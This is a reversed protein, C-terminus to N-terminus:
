SNSKSDRILKRLKAYRIFAAFSNLTTIVIGYFGDLFAKKIFFGKIFNAIPSMYLKIFSARKGREFFDEATITTFKDLQKLHEEISNYTYHNLKGKLKGVTSNENLFVTEHIKGKWKGKEKDWIRIKNDPNWSGYKIWKGCYNTLRSINYSDFTFNEKIELISKQLEESIEEDADISVIYQNKTLSNAYNKQESFGLFENEVFVVNYKQCISKTKDTSFSDVVVIEDAVSEVSKLCREINKEENYTIIVVSIKNM